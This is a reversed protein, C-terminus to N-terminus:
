RLFRIALIYGPQEGRGARVGALITWILWIIFLALLPVAAVAALILWQGDIDLQGTQFLVVVANRLPLFPLFLILSYIFFSIQFNLARKGHHNVMDSKGRFILWVFLPALIGALGLTLGSTLLSSLASVHVLMAWNREEPHSLDGYVPTSPQEPANSENQTM